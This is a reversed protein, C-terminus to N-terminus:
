EVTIRSSTVRSSPPSSRKAHESWGVLVAGITILIVGSWRLNGVDEHRLFRAALTTCVMSLGTLPWVLSVDHRSIMILLCIFFGTEFVMGLWIHRNVTGAKIVRWIESSTFKRLGGIEQLGRDLLVVGVAELVLAVLLIVILKAM